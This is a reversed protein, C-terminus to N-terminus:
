TLRETRAHVPPALHAANVAPPAMAKWPAVPSKTPSVAGGRSVRAHLHQSLRPEADPTAALATDTQFRGVGQLQWMHSSCAHTGAQEGQARAAASCIHTLIQPTLQAKGIRWISTVEVYQLARATAYM